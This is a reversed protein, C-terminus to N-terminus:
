NFLLLLGPQFTVASSLSGLNKSLSASISVSKSISEDINEPKWILNRQPRWVIKDKVNIYTYALDIQGDLYIDFFYIIGKLTFTMM